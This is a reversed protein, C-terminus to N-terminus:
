LRQLRKPAIQMIQQANIGINPALVKFKNWIIALEQVNMQMSQMIMIPNQKNLILKSMFDSEKDNFNYQKLVNLFQNELQIQQQTKKQPEIEGIEM